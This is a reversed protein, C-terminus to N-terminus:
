SKDIYTKNEKKSNNEEMKCLTNNVLFFLQPLLTYDQRTDHTLNCHEELRLWYSFQIKM